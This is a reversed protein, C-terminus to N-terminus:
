KGVRREESKRDQQARVVSKPPGAFAQAISAWTKADDGTIVLDLDPLEARQTVLLAFDWASGRVANDAHADGWIWVQQDPGTLEVYLESTPPQMHNNRYTFQRTAVGSRFLTTYPFLTSRPPPPLPAPALM